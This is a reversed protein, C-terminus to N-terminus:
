EAQNPQIYYSQHRGVNSLFVFSENWANMGESCYHNSSHLHDNQMWNSVPNPLIRQIGFIQKSTCVLGAISQCSPTQSCKWITTLPNWNFMQIGLFSIPLCSISQGSDFISIREMVDASFLWHETNIYCCRAETQHTFLTLRSSNTSLTQSSDGGPLGALFVRFCNLSTMGEESLWIYDQTWLLRLLFLRRFFFSLYPM